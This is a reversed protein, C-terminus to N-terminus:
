LPPKYEEALLWRPVNTLGLREIEKQRRVQRKLLAKAGWGSWYGKCRGFATPHRKRHCSPCVRELNEVSNNTYDKDKHHVYRSDEGCACRAQPLLKRAKNRYYKPNKYDETNEIEGNTKKEVEIIDKTDICM